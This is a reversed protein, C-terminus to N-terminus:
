KMLGALVMQQKAYMAQEPSSFTYKEHTINPDKPDIEKTTKPAEWKKRREVFDQFKRILDEEEKINLGYEFLYAGDARKTLVICGESPQDLTRIHSQEDKLFLEIM